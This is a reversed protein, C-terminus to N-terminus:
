IIGLARAKRVADNRRSASLKRLISRIHSKVTNISVYMAAAIEETRLMDALHRLVEMERTSLSEVLVPVASADRDDPGGAADPLGPLDAHARLVRRLPGGAEHFPRQLGEGSALGVARRVAHQAARVDDADAAIGALLLWADVAVAVPV